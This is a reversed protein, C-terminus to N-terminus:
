HMGAVCASGDEIPGNFANAERLIEEFRVPLIEDPLRVAQVLYIAAWIRCSLEEKILRQRETSPTSTAWLELFAENICELHMQAEILMKRHPM